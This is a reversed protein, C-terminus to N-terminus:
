FHVVLGAGLRISKQHDTENQRYTSFHYDAELLRLSIRKDLSYDLRLGPALAFGTTDGIASFAGGSARAAGLLAQFSPQFRRYAPPSLRPGAMFTSVTVSLGSGAVDCTRNAGVDGVLSLPGAIAFALSADAGNLNLTSGNAADGRVYSYDAALENRSQAAASTRSGFLLLSFLALAFSTWFLRTWLLRMRRSLRAHSKGFLLKLRTTIETRSM